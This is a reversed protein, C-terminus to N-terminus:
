QGLSFPVGGVFLYIFPLALLLLGLILFLIVTSIPAALPNVRHQMYRFFAAFLCGVGVIIAASGIFNNLIGVPHLIQSAYDGIGQQTSRAAYASHFVFVTLVCLTRLIFTMLVTIEAL